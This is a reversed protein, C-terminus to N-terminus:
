AACRKGRAPPGRRCCCRSARGGRVTGKDALVGRLTVKRGYAVTGAPRTITAAGALSRIGVSRFGAVGAPVGLGSPGDYGVTATCLLAPSCVGDTGSAVDRFASPHLYATQPGTVVTSPRAGGNAIAYLAAILPAGASTGGSRLWSGGSYIAVGVRPDAVIAVDNDFRNSCAATIRPVAAQWWPQPEHLSCGSGSAGYANNWVTDRWLGGSYSLTTGGVAVVNPDTAPYGPSDGGYGADGSAATFVKGRTALAPIHDNPRGDETAGWSMSVYDAHAAAYAVAQDLGYGDDSAEVLLIHCSPCVASVMQVDLDTETAWNANPAPLDPGGTQNVVTLCGNARSCAPLGFNDRYVALNSEVAPDDYADVVGITTTISTGPVQYAARLDTPTLIDGGHMVPVSPGHAVRAGRVVLPTYHRGPSAIEAPAAVTLTSGILAVVLLVARCRRRVVAHSITM